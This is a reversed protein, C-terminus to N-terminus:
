RRRRGGRRSLGPARGHAEVTTVQQGAAGREGSMGRERRGRGREQRRRALGRSREIRQRQREVGVVVQDLDRAAGLAGAAGDQVEGPPQEVGIAARHRAGPDLDPLAVREADIMVRAVRAAGGIRVELAEARGGGRRVAAIAEAGDLRDGIGAARRVDVERDAPRPELAQGRLHVEGAMRLVRLVAEVLAEVPLRALQHRDCSAGAGSTSAPALRASNSM